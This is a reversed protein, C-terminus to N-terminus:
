REQMSAFIGLSIGNIFHIKKDVISHLAKMALAESQIIGEQQKVYLNFAEYMCITQDM